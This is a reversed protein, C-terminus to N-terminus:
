HVWFSPIISLVFRLIIAQFTQPSQRALGTVAAELEDGESDELAAVAALFNPGYYHRMVAEHLEGERQRFPGRLLPPEAPRGGGYRCYTSWQARSMLGPQTIVGAIVAEIFSGRFGFAATEDLAEAM